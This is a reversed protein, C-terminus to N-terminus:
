KPKSYHDIAHYDRDTRAVFASQVGDGHSFLATLSNEDHIPTM